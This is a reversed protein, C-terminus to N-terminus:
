EAVQDRAADHRHLRQGRGLSGPLPLDHRHEGTVPRRVPVGRGQLRVPQRLGALQVPDLLCPKAHMDAPHVPHRHQRRPEPRRPNGREGRSREIGAM